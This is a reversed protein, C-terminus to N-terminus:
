SVAHFGKLCCARVLAKRSSHRVRSHADFLEFSAKTRPAVRWCSQAEPSRARRRIRILAAGLTRSMRAICIHWKLPSRRGSAFFRDEVLGPLSEM